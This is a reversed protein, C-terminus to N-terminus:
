EPGTSTDPLIINLDKSVRPLPLLIETTSYALRTSALLERLLALSEKWEGGSRIYEEVSAVKKM